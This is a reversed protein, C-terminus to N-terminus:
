SPLPPEGVLAAGTGALLRSDGSLAAESLEPYPFVGARSVGQLCLTASGSLDRASGVGARNACRTFPPALKDFRRRRGLGPLVGARRLHEGSITQGESFRLSIGSGGRDLPRLNGKLVTHRVQDRERDPFLPTYQKGELYLYQAAM